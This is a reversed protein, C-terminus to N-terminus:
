MRLQFEAVPAANPPTEVQFARWIANQAKRGSRERM